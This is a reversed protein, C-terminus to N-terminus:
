LAAMLAEYYAEPYTASSVSARVNAVVIAKNEAAVELIDLMANLHEGEGISTQEMVTEFNDQIFIAARAGKGYCTNESSIKSSVATTGLDWIVNSIAAPIPHNEFIAAGIGCQTWPNAMANTSLGAAAIAILAYKKM